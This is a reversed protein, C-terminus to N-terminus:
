HKYGCKVSNLVDKSKDDNSAAAAEDANRSTNNNNNEYLTINITRVTNVDIRM